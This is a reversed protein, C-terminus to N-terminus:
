EWDVDIAAGTDDPATLDGETADKVEPATTLEPPTAEDPAATV